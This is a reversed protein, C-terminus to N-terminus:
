RGRDVLLAVMQGKYCRARSLLSGNDVSIWRKRLQTWEGCRICPRLEGVCFYELGHSLDTSPPGSKAKGEAMQVRLEDDYSRVAM